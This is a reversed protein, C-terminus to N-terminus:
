VQSSQSSIVAVITFQWMLWMSLITQFIMRVFERMAKRTTQTQNKRVHNIFVNIQSSWSTRDFSGRLLEVRLVLGWMKKSAKYYSAFCYNGIDM